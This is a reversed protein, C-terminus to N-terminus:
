QARKMKEMDRNLKKVMAELATIRTDMVEMDDLCDLKEIIIQQNEALLDFRERVEVDLRVKIGSVDEQVQNLAQSHQELLKSHQELTKSQQELTKGHQELLKSHQELTESQKELLKSHQELIELIKEENNM